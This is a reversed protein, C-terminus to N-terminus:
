KFPRIKIYWEDNESKLEWQLRDKDQLNFQRVISIPVTTRLSQTQTRAVSVSTVEM